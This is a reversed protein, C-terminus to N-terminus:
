EDHNNDGAEGAEGRFVEEAPFPSLRHAFRDEDARDEVGQDHGRGDGPMDEDDANDERDEEGLLDEATKAPVDEIRRQASATEDVDTKGDGNTDLTLKKAVNRMDEYSDPVKAINYKDFLDKRFYFVLTEAYYPPSYIKGKYSLAEVFGKGFDSLNFGSESIYKDQPELWGAAAVQPLSFNDIYVVDYTSSGTSLEMTVKEVMEKHSMYTLDVKIDPNKNYFWDIHDELLTWDPTDGFLINLTVPEGKMAGQETAKEGGAFLTCLSGLFFILSFGVIIRKRRNRFSM